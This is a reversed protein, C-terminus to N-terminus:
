NGHFNGALQDYVMEAYNQMASRLRPDMSTQQALVAQYQTLDLTCLAKMQKNQPDSWHDVVIARRVAQRVLLNLSARVQDDPLSQITGGGTRTATVALAKSYQDIVSAIERRAGNDANVRQLSRSKQPDAVGIGYFVRGADTHYAGSIKEHWPTRPDPVAKPTACAALLGGTVLLLVATAIRYYDNLRQCM